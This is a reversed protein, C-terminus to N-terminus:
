GAKKINYLEIQKFYFSNNEMLYFFKSNNIKLLIKIFIFLFIIPEYNKRNYKQLGFFLIHQNKLRFNPKKSNFISTLNM